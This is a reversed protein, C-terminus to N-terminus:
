PASPCSASVMCPGSPDWAMGSVVLFFLPIFMTPFLSDPTRLAERIARGGLILSDRLANSSESRGGADAIATTETM